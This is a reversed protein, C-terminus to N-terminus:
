EARDRARVARAGGRREAEVRGLHGFRRRAHRADRQRRGVRAVQWAVVGNVLSVPPGRPVRTRAGRVRRAARRRHRARTYVRFSGSDAVAFVDPDAADWLVAAISGGAENPIPLVRESAPDYMSATAHEDVFVVKTGSANPYVAAVAGDVHRHEAVPARDAGLRPARVRPGHRVRGGGADRRRRDGRGAAGGRRAGAGQVRAEDPDDAAEMIHVFARGECLAIACSAALRDNLAVEGLYERRNVLPPQQARADRAEGARGVRFFWAQNNAGAAVHAEGLAM